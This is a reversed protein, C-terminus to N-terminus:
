SSRYSCRGRVSLARGFVELEDVSAGVALRSFPAGAPSLPRPKVMGYGRNSLVVAAATLGIGGAMVALRRGLVEPGADLPLDDM